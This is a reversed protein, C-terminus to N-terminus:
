HTLKFILVLVIVLGGWAFVMRLYPLKGLNQMTTVLGLDLPRPQMDSFQFRPGHLDSARMAEVFAAPWPPPQLFQAQWCEPMDVLLLALRGRTSLEWDSGEGSGEGTNSFISAYWRMLSREMEESAICTATRHPEALARGM